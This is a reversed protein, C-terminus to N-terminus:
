ACPAQRGPGHAHQEAAQRPLVIKAGPITITVPRPEPPQLLQVQAPLAREPVPADTQQPPHSM